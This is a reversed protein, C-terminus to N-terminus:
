KRANRCVMRHVGWDAKQCDVDCYYVQACPCRMMRGAGLMLSLCRACMRQGRDCTRPNFLVQQSQTDRIRSKLLGAERISVAGHALLPTSGVSCGRRQKM